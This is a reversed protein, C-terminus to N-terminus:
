EDISITRIGMKQETKEEVKYFDSEKLPHICLITVTRGQLFSVNVM